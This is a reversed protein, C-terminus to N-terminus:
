DPLAHYEGRTSRCAFSNKFTQYSCIDPYGDPKPVFVYGKKLMCIDSYNARDESTGSSLEKNRQIENWCGRDARKIDDVSAGSKKWLFYEPPLPKDMDAISQCGGLSFITTMVVTRLLQLDTKFINKKLNM